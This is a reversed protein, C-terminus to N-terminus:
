AAVFRHKMTGIGTIWSTLVDGAHLYRRPDRGHGVGDPTGTFIVDGPLLEVIASLKAILTPVPFVLDATRGKQVSVGNVECGLEVDDRDPLEDPTVLVPGVPSFGPFSKGLGFQPLAAAFQVTRDSIDQGVTLGAVYDWGASEGVGRARAGVVAVLEVEWDVDGPSLTIDGFPGTFSSVYKTFVVPEAPIEFGSEAAHDRYNLGIAFVQRPRPVAARLSREPVPEARGFDVSEAWGRFEAWREYIAQPDSGFLGNSTTEVDVARLPPTEGGGASPAPPEPAVVVLRGDHNAIRM